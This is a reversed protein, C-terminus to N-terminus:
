GITQALSAGHNVTFHDNILDVWDGPRLGDFAPASVDVAILDMSIRGIIPAAVGNLMAQAGPRGDASGALRHYGDAYGVGLIAIRTARELTQAAGYGVSEGAQAARVQM